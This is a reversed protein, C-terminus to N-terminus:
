FFTSWNDENDDDDSDKDNEDPSLGGNANDESHDTKNEEEKFHIDGNGSNDSIDEEKKQEEKDSQTDKDNKQSDEDDDDPVDFQDEGFIDRGFFSFLPQDQTANYLVMGGILIVVLVCIGIISMVTDGPMRQYKRRLRALLEKLKRM